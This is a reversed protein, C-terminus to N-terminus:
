GASRRLVPVEVFDRCRIVHRLAGRVVGPVRTMGEEVGLDRPAGVGVVRGRLLLRGRGAHRLNALWDVDPGYTLAITLAGGGPDPFAMLPTRYTRGSQRGVHELEVFWGHGALRRLAPNLLRRNARTVARPLPM